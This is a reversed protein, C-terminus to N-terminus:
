ALDNLYGTLKQVDLVDGEVWKDLDDVVGYAEDCCQDFFAWTMQQRRGWTVAVPGQATYGRLYAFHGGWSGAASGPGTAVEWVQGNLTQQLATRPLSLGISAGTLLFIAARVEDHNTRDIEAFAAINYGKGSLEWGPDRWWKLSELATLGDDPGGTERLYETVVDQDTIPLTIGQEVREFRLTQHARGAVVCDGCQDNAYMPMPIGPYVLDIDYTDPIPPLAKLLAALRFNRRDRRAPAKGLKFPVSGPAFSDELSM